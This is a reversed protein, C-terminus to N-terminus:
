RAVYDAPVKIAKEYDRRVVRILNSDDADAPLRDAYSELGDLLKGLAPDIFQEHALRRLIASQRGRANAGGAPMYTAEDWSLLSGAANLDSIELLRRQLEALRQEPSRQNKQPKGVTAQTPRKRSKAPATERTKESAKTTKTKKMMMMMMM